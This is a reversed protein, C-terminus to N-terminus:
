TLIDVAELHPCGNDLLRKAQHWDARSITLARSQLENFGLERFREEVWTETKEEDTPDRPETWDPPVGASFGPPTGV